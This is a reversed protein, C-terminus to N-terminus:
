IRSPPSPSVVCQRTSHGRRVRYGIGLLALFAATNIILKFYFDVDISYVFGVFSVLMTAGVIGVLIAWTSADSWRIHAAWRPALMASLGLLAGGAVAALSPFAPDIGFGLLVLCYLLTAWIGGGVILLWNPPPPLPTSAHAILRRSPGTAVLTLLVVLFSSLALTALPPTYVPVHFVHVRAIHTWTFWAFFCGISFLIAAVFAGSRNLCPLHRRSPFMLEALYVPAFIVFVSEYVLAWMLYVFNVGFARAYEQGKLQIVLPALSSQQILCEESFALALALLLMNRWSLHWHRVAARIMLAGGGWVCMEIPFVFLARFRTAGSLVEAVLPALVVLTLAPGIRSWISERKRQSM